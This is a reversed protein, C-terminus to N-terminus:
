VCHCQLTNKSYDDRVLELLEKQLVKYSDSVVAEVHYFYLMYGVDYGHLKM